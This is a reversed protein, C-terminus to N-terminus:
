SISCYASSYCICGAAQVRATEGVHMLSCVAVHRSDDDIAGRIVFFTASATNDHRM